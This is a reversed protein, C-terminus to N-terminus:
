IYGFFLNQLNDVKPNKYYQAVQKFANFNIYFSKISQISFTDYHLLNLM